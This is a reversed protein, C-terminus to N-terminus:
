AANKVNYKSPCSPCTLHLNQSGELEDASPTGGISRKKAESCKQVETYM